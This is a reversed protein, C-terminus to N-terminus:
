HRCPGIGRDPANSGRDGSTSWTWSGEVRLEMCNAGSSSLDEACSANCVGKCPPMPWRM